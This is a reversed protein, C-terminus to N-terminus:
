ATATVCLNTAHGKDEEGGISFGVVVVFASPLVRGAFSTAGRGEGGEVARQQRGTAQCRCCHTDTYTHTRSPPIPTLLACRGLCCCFRLLLCGGKWAAAFSLSLSLFLSSSFLSAFPFRSFVTLQVNHEEEQVATHQGGARVRGTPVTETSGGCMCANQDLLM